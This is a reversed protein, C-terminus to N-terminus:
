SSEGGWLQEAPIVEGTDPDVEVADVPLAELADILTSAEAQTLDNRSAVERGVVASVYSLAEARDSIGHERMAAGIKRLQAATVMPTSEAPAEDTADDLPPEDLPPSDVPAPQSTALAPRATPRARRARTPPTGVTPAAEGADVAAEAVEEPLYALGGLVDAFVRRALRSTARAVLKDEPYAGLDIKARRAQDATFVVRQWQEDGRRRGEVVCRTDSTEIYRLQHGHQLILSRMLLASMGPRGHIVHINALATMPPVGLERGSLVAAAVAAPKGRLDRPVFDTNAIKVSLDGVSALVAVWSDVGAATTAAVPDPTTYEVLDTM